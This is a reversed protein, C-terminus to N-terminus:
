LARILWFATQEDNELGTPLDVRKPLVSDRKATAFRRRYLVITGGCCPEQGSLERFWSALMRAAWQTCGRKEPPYRRCEDAM